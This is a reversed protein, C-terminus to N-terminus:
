LPTVATKLQDFYGVLYMEHTQSTHLPLYESSVEIYHANQERRCVEVHSTLEYM